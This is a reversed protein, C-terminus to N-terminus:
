IRHCVDLEKLQGAAFRGNFSRPRRQVLSNSLAFGPARAAERFNPDFAREAASGM